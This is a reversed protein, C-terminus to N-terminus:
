GSKLIPKCMKREIKTVTSLNEDDFSLGCPANDFFSKDVKLSTIVLPKKFTSEVYMSSCPHLKSHLHLVFEEFSVIDFIGETLCTLRPCKKVVFNAFSTSKVGSCHVVIFENLNELVPCLRDNLFLNLGNVKELEYKTLQTAVKQLNKVVNPCNFDVFALKLDHLHQFNELPDILSNTWSSFNRDFCTLNLHLVEICKEKSMKEMAKRCQAANLNSQSCTIDLELDLHTLHPSLNEINSLINEAETSTVTSNSNWWTLSRLPLHNLLRFEEAGPLKVDYMRASFEELNLCSTLVRAILNRFNDPGYCKIQTARRGYCRYDTILLSILGYFYDAVMQLVEFLFPVDCKVDLITLNHATLKLFRISSVDLQLSVSLQVCKLSSQLKTFLKSFSGNDSAQKLNNGLEGAYVKYCDGNKTWVKYYSKSNRGNYSLTDIDKWLFDTLNRWRRCIQPLTNCWHSLDLHKFIILLIENSLQNMNTSTLPLWVVDIRLFNIIKGATYLPLHVSMLLIRYFSHRRLPRQIYWDCNHYLGDYGFHSLFHHKEATM